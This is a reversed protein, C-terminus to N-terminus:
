QPVPLLEAVDTSDSAALCVIADSDDLIEKIKEGDGTAHFIGLVQGNKSDWYQVFIVL